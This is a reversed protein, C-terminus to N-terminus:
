LLHPGHHLLQAHLLALGDLMGPHGLGDLVGLALDLAAVEIDAFLQQFEVVDGVVLALDDVLLAALQHVGLIDGVGDGEPAGVDEAGQEIAEDRGLAQLLLPVQFPPFLAQGLM